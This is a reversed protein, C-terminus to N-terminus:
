PGAARRVRTSRHRRLASGIRGRAIRTVDLLDDVIRALHRTRREIVSQAHRAADSEGPVHRLVYVSNRIPALPNRLEHSLMALFEDKHRAADALAQEASRRETLDRSIMTFGRLTGDDGRVETAIENVWIRKGGKCLRWGEREARGIREAEELALRPAGGAIDEPTFFTSMPRGLVEAAVYGMVRAAGDTWEIVFGDADLMFIAYDRVNEVLARMRQESDRLAAEDRRRGTIDDLLLAIEDPGYRLATVDFWRHLSRVEHEFREPQGSTAVREFRAIWM